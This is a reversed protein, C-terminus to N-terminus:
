DGPLTVRIEKKREDWLQEAAVLVPDRLLDQVAEWRGHSVKFVLTQEFPKGTAQDLLTTRYRVLTYPKMDRVYEAKGVLFAKQETLLGRWYKVVDAPQRGTDQYHKTLFARSDSSWISFWWAYDGAAMASLFAVAAKEPTTYSAEARSVARVPVPTEFMTVQVPTVREIIVQKSTVTARPEGQDLASAAGTALALFGCCFLTAKM